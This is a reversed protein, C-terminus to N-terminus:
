KNVQAGAEASSSSHCSDSAPSPAPRANTPSSTPSSAGTPNVPASCFPLPQEVEEHFPASAAAEAAAEADKRKMYTALKEVTNLTPSRRGERIAAILGPEGTSERALRSEKMGHRELFKDIQAVLETQTPINMGTEYTLYM